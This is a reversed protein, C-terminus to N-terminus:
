SPTRRASTIRRLPRKVAGEVARVDAGVAPRQGAGRARRPRPDAGGFGSMAFDSGQEIIEVFPFEPVESTLEARLATLKEGSLIGEFIVAHPLGEKCFESAEDVSAVMDVILGMNKIADRVQVRVERRSAIVLLHSGALPKSNTSPAFGQDLEFTSVGEM